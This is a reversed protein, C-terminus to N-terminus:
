KEQSQPSLVGRTKITVLVGCTTSVDEKRLLFSSYGLGITLITLKKNKKMLHLKM